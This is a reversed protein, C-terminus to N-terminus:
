KGEEISVIGPAFVQVETGPPIQALYYNEEELQARGDLSGDPTETPFPTEAATPPNPTTTPIQTETATPPISAEESQLPIALDPVSSGSERPACGAAVLLVVALIIAVKPVRM